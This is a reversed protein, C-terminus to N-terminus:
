HKHCLFIHWSRIVVFGSQPVPQLTSQPDAPSLLGKRSGTCQVHSIDSKEELTKMTLHSFKPTKECNWPM